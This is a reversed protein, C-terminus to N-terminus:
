LSETQNKRTLYAALVRRVYAQTEKYPPIGGYKKVAGPGANYSALALPINGNNQDLLQALYKVGGAINEEPNFANKVGLHKATAPMLQMLGQAGVRSVANPNFGSEQRIVAHILAQDVGFQSAYKGVLDKFREQRAQIPETLPTLRPPPTVNGLVDQFSPSPLPPLPPTPLATPQTRIEPAEERQIDLKAMLNQIEAMRQAMSGVSQGAGLSPRFAPPPNVGSPKIGSSKLPNSPFMNFM